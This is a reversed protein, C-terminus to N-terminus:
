TKEPLPAVKPAENERSPLAVFSWERYAEITALIVLIAGALQFPLRAAADVSPEAFIDGYSAHWGLQIGACFLLLIAFVHAVRNWNRTIAAFLHLVALLPLILALGWLRLPQLFSASYALRAPDVRGGSLFAAIPGPALYFAELLVFGIVAALEALVSVDKRPHSPTWAFSEPWRRMAWSKAAFFLALAGIWALLLLLSTKPDVSIPLRPNGPPILLAGAIAALAFSSTDTPDVITYPTHYRAAVDQPRGFRRVLALASAENRGDSASLEDVLQGRLEAAVDNRLRHPLQAAVATVYSNIVDQPTM